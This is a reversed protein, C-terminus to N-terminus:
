EQKCLLRFLTSKGSGNLGVLGAKKGRPVGFSADEYLVEGAHAFTIKKVQIM